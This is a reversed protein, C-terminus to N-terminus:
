KIQLSQIIQRGVALWDSELKALTNFSVVLLQGDHSTGAVLNRVPADAAPTQVDLLFWQRGHLTILESGYWTAQPYAARMQAEVGRHADPVQAPTTPIPLPSLTVNVTGAENSYALKPPNTTPYKLQLMEPSLPTFGAPILVSLRGGLLSKQELAPAAASVQSISLLALTVLVKL